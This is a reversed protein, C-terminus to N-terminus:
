EMRYSSGVAPFMKAAAQWWMSIVKDQTVIAVLNNSFQQSIMKRLNEFLRKPIREAQGPDLLVDVPHTVSREMELGAEYAAFLIDWTWKPALTCLIVSREDDYWRVQVTSDDVYEM